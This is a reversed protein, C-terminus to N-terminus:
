VHARGIETGTATVGAIADDSSRMDLGIWRNDAHMGNWARGTRQTYNSVTLEGYDLGSAYMIQDERASQSFRVFSAAYKLCNNWTFRNNWKRSDFVYVSRDEGATAVLTSGSGNDVITDLDFLKGRTKSLRVVPSPQRLDWLSLVNGETVSRFLM